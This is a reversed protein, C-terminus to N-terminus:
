GWGGDLITLTDMVKGGMENCITVTVRVGVGVQIVCVFLVRWM